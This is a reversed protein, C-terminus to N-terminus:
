ITDTNKSKAQLWSTTDVRKMRKGSSSSLPGRGGGGGGGWPLHLSGLGGGQQMVRRRFLAVTAVAVVFLVCLVIAAIAGSSLGSGGGGCQLCWKGSPDCTGCKVCAGTRPDMLGSECATAAATQQQEYQLLPNTEASLATSSVASAVAYEAQLQTSSALQQAASLVFEGSRQGGDGGESEVAAAAFEAVAAADVGAGAGSAAEDVEQLANGIQNVTLVCM